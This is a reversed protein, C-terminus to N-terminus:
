KHKGKAGRLHQNLSCVGIPIAADRELVKPLHERAWGGSLASCRGAATASARADCAAAACHRALSYLTYLIFNVCAAATRHRALSRKTEPSWKRPSRITLNVSLDSDAPSFASFGAQRQGFVYPNIYSLRGVASNIRM